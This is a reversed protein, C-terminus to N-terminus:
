GEVRRDKGQVRARLGLVWLSKSRLGEVVVRCNYEGLGAVHLLHRSQLSVHCLQPALWLHCRHTRLEVGGTVFGPAWWQCFSKSSLVSKVTKATKSSNLLESNESNESQSGLLVTLVVLKWIRRPERATREHSFHFLWYNVKDSRNTVGSRGDWLWFTVKDSWFKSFPRDPTFNWAVLLARGVLKVHFFPGHVACNKWFLSFLSFLLSLLSFLSLM